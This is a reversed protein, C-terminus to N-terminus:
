NEDRAVTLSSGCAEDLLSILRASDVPKVLYHDFGADLSSRRDQDHGYGTAAILLMHATEPQSRLHRALENGNMEPLGIDLIAVAPRTHLAQELAPGPRHEVSVAYGSAELVLSLMHAADVNDDVILIRPRERVPRAAPAATVREPASLAPVALRPLCVTFCSGQGPGTSECRVTGDHLEALSKVLALGLGLGGQARDATREAQAFLDFAHKQLEATMGVGNDLVHVLVREDELAISLRVHGGPPTYKAANNLLNTLIQVLRKDDGCVYAPDFPLDVSLRHRHGEILPRVQEVANSVVQKMDQPSKNLAVLGRTVRSVDLLDDVLGTMHGVQRSIIESTKRLRAEDLRAIAMLEAAARIPALPNRLEHALMALFEDKRQNAERLMEEAQKRETIDRFFAALGGDLTPYASIESWMVHGNAFTQRYVRTDPIGTEKVRRYLQGGESDITEPWVEWHNHGIAQEATRHCIRLGAANMQLVTWDRDILVFGETMNDFIAKNRAHETRLQAHIRAQEVALWTRAAVDSAAEIDADSWHRPTSQHLTLVSLLRGEGVVPVALNAHVGIKEYALGHPATRPDLMVDPVAVLQGARLAAIIESGFDDLRRADGALSPLGPSTWDNRVVFTGKADDVECFAVRSLDLHRGLLACATQVINEPAVLTRLRDALALQFSQLAATRQLEAEIRRKETIDAGQGCIGTVTGIADTIPQLVLDVYRVTTSGDPAAQLVIRQAHAIYPQGTRWVEDHLEHFKRGALEPLAATVAKGIVEKQGILEQYANNAQEIVHDEGKTFYVFGPAHEFLMQLRTREAQLATNVEHVSKARVFTSAELHALKDTAIQHDERLAVMETVDMTSHSICELSGDDGFIPTSVASWYREEFRTIGDAGTVSIPYRQLALTDPKGSAIVRMLSLRLAAVGTDAPDDPNEPFAVFLSTGVLEERTRSSAKLFADNVALIIAEPTPSLLYEGVPSSNFAAQYVSSPLTSGTTAM